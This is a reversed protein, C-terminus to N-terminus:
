HVKLYIGVALCVLTRAEFCVSVDNQLLPRLLEPTEKWIGWAFFSFTKAATEKIQCSIYHKSTPWNKTECSPPFYFFVTQLNFNNGSVVDVYRLITQFAVQSLNLRIKLETTVPWSFSSRPYDRWKIAVDRVNTLRLAYVSYTVELPLAENAVHSPCWSGHRLLKTTEDTGRALRWTTGSIAGRDVAPEDSMLLGAMWNYMNQPLSLTM